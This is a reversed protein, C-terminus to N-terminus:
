IIFIETHVTISHKQLDPRVYWWIIVNLCCLACVVPKYTVLCILINPIYQGDQFLLQIALNLKIYAFDTSTYHLYAYMTNNHIDNFPNLLSYQWTTGTSAKHIIKCYPKINGYYLLGIYLSSTWLLKLRLLRRLFLRSIYIIFIIKPKALSKSMEPLNKGHKQQSWM